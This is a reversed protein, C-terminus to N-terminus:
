WQCSIRNTCLSLIIHIALVPSLPFTDLFSFFSLHVTSIYCNSHSFSYIFLPNVLIPDSMPPTLKAAAYALKQGKVLGSGGDHMCSM